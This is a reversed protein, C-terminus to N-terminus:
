RLGFSIERRETAGGAYNNITGYNNLSSSQSKFPSKDPNEAYYDRAKKSFVNATDFTEQVSDPHENFYRDYDPNERRFREMGERTFTGGGTHRNGFEDVWGESGTSWTYARDGTKRSLARAADLMKQTFGRLRLVFEDLTLGSKIFADRLGSLQQQAVFAEGSIGAKGLVISLKTLDIAARQSADQQAALANSQATTAEQALELNAIFEAQTMNSKEYADALATLGAMADTIPNRAGGGGRGSGGPLAPVVGPGAGTGYPVFAGPAEGPGAVGRDDRSGLSRGGFRDSTPRTFDVAGPVLDALNTGKVGGLFGLGPIDSAWGAVGAIGGTLDDIAEAVERIMRLIGNVTTEVIGAVFNMAHQVPAPMADFVDGWYRAILFVIGGPAFFLVIDQLIEWVNDRLFGPAATMAGWVADWNDILLYLGAVVAAIAIPIGLLAANAAIAAAVAAPVLAWFGIAAAGLGAALVGGAVIGVAALAKENGALGELMPHLVSVFKEVVPLAVKGFGVALSELDHTLVKLQESVTGADRAAAEHATGSKTVRETFSDFTGVGADIINILAGAAGAGFLSQAAQTKQADSLTAFKPGLTEIVGRIGIFKGTADFVGVGLNHLTTNVDDSGSTLNNIAGTVAMIGRSGSLGQSTLETLLAATEGIPPASAGLKDKLRDVTTALEGVGIGTLRTTNFLVDSVSSAESLPIRYALMVDVLAGTSVGLNSMSADALDTAATMVQTATAATLAAGTVTEIRGAVPTLAGVMERAGFESNRGIKLMADGVRNAEAESIDAFNSLDITAEEYAIAMKTAAAAVGIEITALVGAAAGLAQMPKIASSAAGSLDDLEKKAKAANLRDLASGSAAAKAALKDFKEAAAEISLSSVKAGTGLKDMRQQVADLKSSVQDTAKLIVELTATAM